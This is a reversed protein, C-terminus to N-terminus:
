NWISKMQHVKFIKLESRTWSSSLHITPNDPMLHINSFYVEGGQAYVETSMRDVFIRLDLFEAPRIPMQKDGVKLKNGDDDYSISLDGIKLSILEKNEPKVTLEIELERQRVDKLVIGSALSEGSYDKSNRRLSLLESIPNMNLRLGDDYSKITLESPLSLQQSFPMGYNKAWNAMWTVQARRGNPENEWTMTAVFNGPAVLRRRDEAKAPVGNLTTFVHGDFDGIIYGGDLFIMVWKKREEDGDIPLEFFDVCGCIENGWYNQKVRSELKWDQLDPSSYIGVCRLYKGDESKFYDFTPAIFRQTPEYWFPRPTDMRADHPKEENPDHDLVPNDKFDKFLFGNDESLAYCLGGKTRLYFAVLTDNPNEPTLLNQQDFFSAGSFCDGTSPDPYLVAPQEKWHVLDRSTAHGWSMNGHFVSFPNYQYYLHYIGDAYILGNPDNLWGRKTTYHYQPRFKEKYISDLGLIENSSVLADLSGSYNFAKLSLRQAEQNQLDIFGYFDPNAEAIPVDFDGILGSEDSILIRKLATQRKMSLPINLYRGNVSIEKEIDREVLPYDTLRIEDVLLHGWGGKAQDSLLIHALAGKWNSLDVVQLQLNESNDGTSRHITDGEIVIALYLDHLNNGGGIYFSLYDRDIPFTDSYLTGVANDRGHYSNALREGIYGTVPMQNEVSGAASEDGFASGSAAWGDFQNSEFDAIVIDERKEPSCAILLLAFSIIWFQYKM